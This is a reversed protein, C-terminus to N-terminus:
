RYLNYVIILTVICPIAMIIINKVWKFRENRDSKDEYGNNARLRDGSVAAGSIFIAIVILIASTILLYFGINVLTNNVFAFIFNAAVLIIGILFYKFM